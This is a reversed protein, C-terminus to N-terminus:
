FNAEIQGKGTRLSFSLRCPKEHNNNVWGYVTAHGSKQHFGRIVIQCCRVVFFEHGIPEGKQNGTRKPQFVAKQQETGSLGLTFGFSGRPGLHRFFDVVDVKIPCWRIKKRM